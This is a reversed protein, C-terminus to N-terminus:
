VEGFEFISNIKSKASCLFDCTGQIKTAYSDAAQEDCSIESRFSAFMSLPSFMKLFFASFKIISSSSKVHSIEHLLVAEIEKKELLDLLGASLFIVPRINSFSFAYPVADDIMYVLPVSIKARSSEKKVFTSVFTGELSKASKEKTYIFILPSLITGIIASCIGTLAILYVTASISSCGSVLSSCGSFLLYYIVPFVLAFVHLYTLLVKSGASINKRLILILSLLAVALSVAVIGMKYPDYFFGSVCETCVM